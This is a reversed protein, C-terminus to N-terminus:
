RQGYSTARCLRACGGRLGTAADPAASGVGRLSALIEALRERYAPQAMSTRLPYSGEDTTMEVDLVAGTTRPAAEFRLVM